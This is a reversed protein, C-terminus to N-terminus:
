SHGAFDPFSIKAWAGQNTMSVAPFVPVGTPIDDFVVGIEAGDCFVTLVGAGTDMLLGIRQGDKFGLEGQLAGAAGAKFQVMQDPGVGRTLEKGTGSPLDHLAFVSTLDRMMHGLSGTRHSEGVLVGIYYTSLSPIRMLIEWYHSGSLPLPDRCRM